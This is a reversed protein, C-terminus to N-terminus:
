VLIDDEADCRYINNLESIPIPDVTGTNGIRSCYSHQSLASHLNSDLGNISWFNFYCYVFKFNTKGLV